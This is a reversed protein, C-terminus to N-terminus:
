CTHDETWSRLICERNVHVPGCCQLSLCPGVPKTYLDSTLDPSQPLWPLSQSPNLLGNKTNIKINQIM